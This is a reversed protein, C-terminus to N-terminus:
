KIPITTHLFLGGQNLHNRAYEIRLLMDYFGIVNLGLGYGLLWQNLFTDDAQSFSHDEVWGQDVFASLYIGLPGENFKDAPIFPLRIIKYPFLAWRAEWKFTSVQTGALLYAQYGRLEHNVGVFEGKRMGLFTKEQWPIQRGLSHIHQLGYAMKWRESLSFFHAWSFGLRLFHLDRRDLTQAYRFFVHYKYGKLPYSKLDREDRFLGLMLSPYALLPAPRTFFPSIQDSAEEAFLSDAYRFSQWKLQTRLHLRPTFRKNFALYALHTRRYYDGLQGRWLAKGEETGLIVQRERSYHYGLRLDLRQSRFISPRIFDLSFRQSFGGQVDLTLWENRGSLNQWQLYGGYVLRDLNQRRLAALLDYSNREEVGLRPSGWLYWREKLHITITLLRASLKADIRVENFLALNYLNQQSEELLRARDSLAVKQGQRFPLEQFIVWAKTKQLGKLHIDVQLSDQAPLYIGTFCILFFSFIQRL